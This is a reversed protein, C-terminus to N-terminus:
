KVIWKDINRTSSSFNVGIKVKQRPDQAFPLAYQKEEIQALAEEASADLKFEMIFIRDKTKLILDARGDSTRYEVDTYLGALRFVVFLTNQWHKENSGSLEYTIGAFFSRLREMFANVDGREIDNVFKKIEFPSDTASVGTYYPMLFRMFGEEVERNPFGLTYIGFESDYRKITLYGSQYMVPIPNDDSFIGDLSDAGTEVHAMEELDYNSKKLLEVLYTPTGTQFWYNGFRKKRFTCLISFPNYIGPSEPCFRYGDYEDKLKGCAEDFSLGNAVALDAIDQRFNEILEKGSIGCITAYAPDWSIDDLNNLDSFVSVKGFKTVGTLLAFRIHADESKLVGYFPKLTNRFTTQLAEDSIAQLMPKDYEDVLIVAREGTKEHARRIVGAFRRANGIEDDRKGYISEWNNINENLINDLSEPSDYQQANLDLHLVPYKKWEKELSAIELGDFLESKGQFYAELTSILVSKGFRRPRSLFYYSGTTVLRYMQATKDVYYYGDRRLKEFNQIGVPYLRDM